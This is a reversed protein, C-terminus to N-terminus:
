DQNMKENKLQRIKICKEM